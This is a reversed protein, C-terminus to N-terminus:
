HICQNGHHLIRSQRHNTEIFLVALLTFHAREGLGVVLGKGFGSLFLFSEGKMDQFLQAQPFPDDPQSPSSHCKLGFLFQFTYTYCCWGTQHPLAKSDCEMKTKM